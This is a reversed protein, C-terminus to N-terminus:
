IFNTGYESSRFEPSNKLLLMSGKRKNTRRRVRPVCNRSKPPYQHYGKSCKFRKASRVKPSKYQAAKYLEDSMCRNAYNKRKRTGPPCRPM